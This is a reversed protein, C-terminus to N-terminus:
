VKREDPLRRRRHSLHNSYTFARNAPTEQISGLLPALEKPEIGPLLDRPLFKKKGKSSDISVVAVRTTKPHILRHQELVQM